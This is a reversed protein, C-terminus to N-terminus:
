PRPAAGTQHLVLRRPLVHRQLGTRGRWDHVRALRVRAGRAEAPASDRLTGAGSPPARGQLCATWQRKAARTSPTLGRPAAPTWQRPSSWRHTGRARGCRGATQGRGRATCRRERRGRAGRRCHRRLRVLVHARPIEGNTRHPAERKGAESGRGASYLRRPPIWVVRAGHAAGACPEGLAARPAERSVARAPQLRCEMSGPV